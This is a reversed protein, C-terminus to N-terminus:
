TPKSTSSSFISRKGKGTERQECCAVGADRIRKYIMLHVKGVWRQLSGVRILQM